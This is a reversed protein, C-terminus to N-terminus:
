KSIRKIIVIIKTSNTQKTANQLDSVIFSLIEIKNNIM